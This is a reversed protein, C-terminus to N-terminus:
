SLQTTIHQAAVVTGFDLDGVVGAAIPMTRLTLGIGANPESWVHGLVLKHPVGPAVVGM